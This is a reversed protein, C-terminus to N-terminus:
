AGQCIWEMHPSLLLRSVGAAVPQTRASSSRIPLRPASSSRLWSSRWAAAWWKWRRLYAPVLSGALLLVGALGAATQAANKNLGFQMRDGYPTHAYNHAQDNVSGILGLWVAIGAVTLLGLIAFM